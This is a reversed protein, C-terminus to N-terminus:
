CNLVIIFTLGFSWRFLLSYEGFQANPQAMKTGPSNLWHKAIAIINHIIVLGHIIVQNSVIISSVDIPSLIEWSYTCHIFRAEISNEFEQLSGWTIWLFSIERFIHSVAIIVWLDKKIKKTKQARILVYDANMPCYQIHFLLDDCRLHSLWNSNVHTQIRIAWINNTCIEWPRIHTNWQLLGYRPTRDTTPPCPLILTSLRRCGLTLVLQHFAHYLPINHLYFDHLNNMCCFIDIIFPLWPIMVQHILLIIAM